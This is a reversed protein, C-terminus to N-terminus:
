HAAGRDIWRAITRLEDVTLPAGPPDRHGLATPAPRDPTDGPLLKRLLYSRSSDNREVLNLRSVQRSAVGVLAAVADRDCLSLGAAPQALCDTEAGADAADPRAARHCDAGACSHAFIPEVDSFPTAVVPLPAPKAFTTTTHFTHRETPAVCGRLSALPPRVTVNYGLDSRLGGQAQYTITKDILDVGFTGPHYFIGTTLIFGALKVTDPDPYDSLALTVITDRPVDLAGNLPTWSLVTLPECAGPFPQTDTPM